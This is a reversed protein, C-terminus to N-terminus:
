FNIGRGSGLLEKCPVALWSLLLGEGGMEGTRSNEPDPDQM